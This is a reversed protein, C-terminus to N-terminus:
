EFRYEIYQAFIDPNGSTIIYLFALRQLDYEKQAKDFFPSIVRNPKLM